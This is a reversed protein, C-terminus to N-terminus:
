EEPLCWEGGRKVSRVGLERRARALTRTNIGHAGEALLELDKATIAKAIAATAEHACVSCHRPM